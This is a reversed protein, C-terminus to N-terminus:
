LVRDAVSGGSKEDDEDAANVTAGKECLLRTMRTHGTFSAAQLANGYKEGQTNVDAGSKLLLCAIEIHGSYSV